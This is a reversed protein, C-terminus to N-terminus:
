RRAARAKAAARLLAAARAARAPRAHASRVIRGIAVLMGVSTLGAVAMIRVPDVAPLWRVQSGTVVYVGVPRAHVAFGGGEGDDGRANNGGGGGASGYVKAVPVVTRDGREIPEGFVRRM